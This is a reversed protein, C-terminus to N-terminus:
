VEMLELSCDLWGEVEGNANRRWMGASRDSIYMERPEYKGTTQNFFRITNIFRSGDGEETKFLENIYAWQEKTLYRWSLSITAVDERVVAGLLHGSVSTGSDLMTTTTGSYSAPELKDNLPFEQGGRIITVLAEAM